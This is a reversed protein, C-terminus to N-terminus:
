PNAKQTAQLLGLSAVATTIQAIAATPDAPLAGTCIPTIQSDLLSVQNIQTPTLKGAIRLQLATSFATGYAVCAKAYAVQVSVTPTTTSPAVVSLPSCAALASILFAALVKKM